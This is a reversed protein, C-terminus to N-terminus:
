LAARAALRARASAAEPSRPYRRVLERWAAGDYRFRKAAADFTFGVGQKRYRDLGNYNMFYSHAPAGGAEMERADLRRAAEVSLRVAAADAAEGYILLVAPRLTSREFIDLFIRARALRDFDESGRILRLLRADDGARSAAVFSEAQLWGRTRRTVAVNYFSVGDAERRQGTLSLARGRGLRQRLPASLDPADRLAALREDVVVAARAGSFTRRKQAQADSALALLCALAIFLCSILGPQSTFLRRPPAAYKHSNTKFLFVHFADGANTLPAAAPM